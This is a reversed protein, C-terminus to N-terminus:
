RSQEGIKAPCPAWTCAAPRTGVSLLLLRRELTEILPRCFNKDTIELMGIGRPLKRHGMM